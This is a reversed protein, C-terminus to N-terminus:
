EKYWIVKCEEQGVIDMMAKFTKEPTTANGWCHTIISEGCTHNLFLHMAKGNRIDPAQFLVVKCGKSILRDAEKMLYEKNNVYSDVPLSIVPIYYDKLDPM